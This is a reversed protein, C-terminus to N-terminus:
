HKAHFAKLLAFHRQCFDSVTELEDSVEILMYHSPGLIAPPINNKEIHKEVGQWEKILRPTPRLIVPYELKPPIYGSFAVDTHAIHVTKAREGGDKARAYVEPHADVFPKVDIGEEDRMIAITSYFSNLIAAFLYSAEKETTSGTTLPRHRQGLVDLLELFFRAEELKRLSSM